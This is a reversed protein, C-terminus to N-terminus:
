CVGVDVLLVFQLLTRRIAWVPSSARFTLQMSHGAAGLWATLDYAVQMEWRDLSTDRTRILSFRLVPVRLTCRKSLSCMSLPTVKHQGDCTFADFKVRVRGIRLVEARFFYRRM